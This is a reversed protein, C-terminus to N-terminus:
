KDEKWTKGSTIYHITNYKIGVLEAIQRHTKGEQHMKRINRAIDMNIKSKHNKVGSAKRERGREKMEDINKQATGIHLHDPNVCLPTDCSHLVFLGQPIDGKWLTYAARHALIKKKTGHLVLSTLGYMKKPECKYGNWIWCGKSNEETTKKIREKSYEIYDEGVSYCSLM